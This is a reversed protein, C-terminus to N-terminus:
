RAKKGETSVDNAFVRAALDIAGAVLLFDAIGLPLAYVITPINTYPWRVVFLLPVHVILLIAITAWFWAHRHLAWRLRVALMCMGLVICATFGLEAKDVYIFFFLVPLLMVGILTGLWDTARQEKPRDYEFM